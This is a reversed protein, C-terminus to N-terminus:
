VAGKWPYEQILPKGWIDKLSDKMFVRVSQHGTESHCQYVINEIWKKKPIIKNKRYGTEAGIIIWDARFWRLHLEIDEHLPEVSIFRNIWYNNKYKNHSHFRWDYYRESDEQTTISIGFYFSNLCSPLIRKAILDEYRKYNKTLFLYRHQPAKGCAEIVEQIWEDPVWDGFLDAMSCVFLNQPTKVKKPEDLRYRHFTPVFGFPYHSIKAPNKAYLKPIDGRCLPQRIYYIGSGKKQEYHSEMMAVWSKNERLDGKGKFRNAIKEAYCYPCKHRCGTIPNWTQDCWEIKTKNM